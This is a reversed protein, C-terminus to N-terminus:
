LYLLAERNRATQVAIVEDPPEHDTPKAVTEPPYLEYTFSFIRHRGYMWDIQDGDTIYLDSSQQAKYGNKAAMAGAMAVFTRHDDLTMDSPVNTYTYGYPYLILEGNTHFTVHTRIQQKGGIVRSRVFDRMVRTEPASFPSAGRYNWASKNGSSGGCCGWRYDYNRNPDTGIATTGANPQRNKRWGRYPSGTLDYAWGDPNLAFIFWIERSDVISGIRSDTGYRSTLLDFQDLIQEITLHERAHHLADFLVEPEAEDTGVNDSVKAAWIYRGYYSKGVTFVDVIEPYAVEMERIKVIMEWENHYLSDWSPYNPSRSGRFVAAVKGDPDLAVTAGNARNDGRPFNITSTAPDAGITPGMSMYGASTQQTVTLNATIAVASGPIDDRGGIQVSGPLASAFMRPRGNGVRTDLLRVPDHAVYTAGSGDPLYYGTVDLV